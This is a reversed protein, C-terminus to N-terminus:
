KWLSDWINRVEKGIKKSSKVVEKTAREVKKRVKRFENGLRPNVKDLTNEIGNMWIKALKEAFKDEEKELKKKVKLNKESKIIKERQRKTLKDFKDITYYPLIDLVAFFLKYINWGTLADYEIIQDARFKEHPFEEKLGKLFNLKMEQIAASERPSTPGKLGDIRIKKVTGDIDDYSLNSLQNIGFILHNSKKGGKLLQKVSEITGREIPRPPITVIIVGDVEEARKRYIKKYEKDRKSNDGLGPVDILLLNNDQYRWEFEEDKMTGRSDHSVKGKKIGFLTNITTTKGNGTKGAIMIRPEREDPLYEKVNERFQRLKNHVRNLESNKRIEKLEYPKYQAYEKPYNEKVWDLLEHVLNKRNFFKIVFYILDEKKLYIPKRNTSNIFDYNSASFEIIEKKTITRNSLLRHIQNLNYAKDKGTILERDIEIKCERVFIELHKKEFDRNISQLIRGNIQNLKTGWEDLKVAGKIFNELWMNYEGSLIIFTQESDTDKFVKLLLAIVKDTNGQSLHKEVIQKFKINKM